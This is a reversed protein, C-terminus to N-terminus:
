KQQQKKPFSRMITQFGKEIADNEILGAMSMGIFGATAGTEDSVEDRWAVTGTTKDFLIAAM